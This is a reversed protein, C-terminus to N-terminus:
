QEPSRTIISPIVARVSQRPGYQIATYNQGAVRFIFFIAHQDAAIKSASYPSHGVRQHAEDMPTYNATGYVESTSTHLVEVGNDLTAQLINLTRVHDRHLIETSLLLLPNIYGALHMVCDVDCIAKTM